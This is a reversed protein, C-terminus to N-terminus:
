VGLVGYVMVFLGFSVAALLVCDLYCIVFWVIVQTGCICPLKGVSNVFGVVVVLLTFWCLLSLFWYFARGVLRVM